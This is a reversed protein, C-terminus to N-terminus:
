KTFRNFFYKLIKDVLPWLLMGSLAALMSELHVLQRQNVAHIFLLLAHILLLIVLVGILQRVPTNLKGMFGPLQLLFIGTVYALAYQGLPTATGADVALGILFATFLGFTQPRYLALFILVLASFKPLWFFTDAPLPIFDLLLAGALTLVVPVIPLRTQSISLNSM